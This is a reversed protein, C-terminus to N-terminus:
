LSRIKPEVPAKAVLLRALANVTAAIGDIKGKSKRKSFKIRGESDEQVALNGSMWTLVPNDGHRLRGAAVLDLFERTPANSARCTQQIEVPVLNAEQLRASIERSQYPDLAVVKKYFKFDKSISIIDEAIKRLDSVEGETTRILGCKVYQDYPIRGQNDKMHQEITDEPLWFFPLVVRTGDPMPFVLSLASLDDTSGIDLGVHCPIKKLAEIDIPGGCASWHRPDIIRIDSSTWVNLELRLFANLNHPASIALNAERRLYDIEKTTGLNPNAAYWNEENLVNEPITYDLDPDASYIIPYFAWDEVEGTLVRKAYTHLEYAISNKDFGATTCYLALPQKRSSQSTRLVRILEADQLAHVEDQIFCHVNLGHKSYAEASIVKLSSHTSPMVISNKYIELLSSLKPDHEITRKIMEHSIRAQEREAASCIVQSAAEGDGTLMYLAIASAWSTKGNKRAIEFWVERVVRFGDEKVWGFIRRLHRRQERTPIFPQGAFAGETHKVRKECFNIIRKAKKRDFKFGLERIKQRIETISGRKVPTPSPM